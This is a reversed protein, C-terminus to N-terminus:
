PMLGVHLAAVDAIKLAPSPVRRYPCDTTECNRQADVWDIQQMVVIPRFAACLQHTNPYISVLGACSTSGILLM